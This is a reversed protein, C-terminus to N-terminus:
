MRNQDNKRRQSDGLHRKYIKEIIYINKQNEDKKQEEERGTSTM